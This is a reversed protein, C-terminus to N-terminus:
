AHHEGGHEVPARFRYGFHSDTLVYRPAGADDGLKKRLQRVFTRLYEIEGRYEPGWVAGLIHGHSLSVGAHSMFYHLLEFETPTLHLERGGARVVRRTPDLEVEGIRIVSGNKDRLTRWRRVATRLRATLERIQFPKTVYDDAGADFAEIKVEETDKVTLMIVGISPMLTRIERCTEIGSMGPMSIDLLVVDLQITRILALAQEGTEAEVVEFGAAGLTRGLAWRISEEDDVVLVKPRSERDPSKLPQASQRQM